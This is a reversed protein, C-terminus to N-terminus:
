LASPPNRMLGVQRQSSHTGLQTELHHHTDASRRGSLHVDSDGGTSGSHVRGAPKDCLSPSCLTMFILVTKVVYYICMYWLAPM